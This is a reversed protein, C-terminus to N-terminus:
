FRKAREGSSIELAMSISLSTNLLTEGTLLASVKDLDRLFRLFVKFVRVFQFVAKLFLSASFYKLIRAM